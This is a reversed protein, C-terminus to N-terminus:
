ATYKVETYVKFLFYIPATIELHFYLQQNKGQTENNLVQM